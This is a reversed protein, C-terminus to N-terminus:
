NLKLDEEYEEVVDEAKGEMVVTGNHLWIVRDCYKKIAELSHSVMVVSSGGKLLAEMKELSKKQYDRDAGGGIVEDILLIDPNKHGVCHLGISSSLRIQMGSSFKFLPTDIYEGLGSFDVIEDFKNRIDEQGLGMISGILFINEKMTLKQKLGHGFGTLYILEGNTEVIGSDVRYVEAMVRLLTSKGSGNKGIIGLNEGAMVKLSIDKLVSFENSKNTKFLGLFNELANKMRGKVFNKNVNELNIRINEM